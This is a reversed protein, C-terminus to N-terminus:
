RVPALRPDEACVANWAAALKRLSGAGPIALSPAVQHASFEDLQLEYASFGRSGSVMARAQELRQQWPTREERDRLERAIGKEGIRDLRKELVELMRPARCIRAWGAEALPSPVINELEGQMCAIVWAWQEPYPASLRDCLGGLRILIQEVSDVVLEASESLGSLGGDLCAEFQSQSRISWSDVVHLFCADVILSEIQSRVTGPAQLGAYRIDLGRGDLLWDLHGSLASGCCNVLASTIGLHHISCAEIRAPLLQPSFGGEGHRIAVWAVLRGTIGPVLLSEPLPDVPLEPSHNPCLAESLPEVERTFAADVQDRLSELLAAPERGRALENGQEDTVLIVMSLHEPLRDRDFDSAALEIGGIRTLYRALEEFLDGTGFELEESADHATQGIPTFRTRIRKPLSRILIEVKENLLGPVMWHLRTVDLQGLAPLSVEVTVGDSHFGPEHRYDLRLDAGDPDLTDPFQSSDIGRGGSDLLDSESMVLLGPARREAKTRWREFSPASHIDAPIRQDYFAFRKESPALLDHRRGKEELQEIRKRLTTNRELFSARTRLKEEVLAEHIFVDRAVVPDIPGFPVRRRPVVVLQGFHVREYAAVQGSDKLYHPDEYERRVLHPAVREVWDGRIKAAVRGFRRTTEMVEAVVVWPADSRGLGSSPHIQFQAGNVMEYAREDNRRGINSVLGSLIARHMAGWGGDSLNAERLSPMKLEFVERVTDRLQRHVEFWERMRVNSLFRDVCWRRAASAGESRHQEQYGVWLRLLGAFDSKQDRWPSQALDAASEQGPPRLRPDQISLASAIVLVEPLVREDIAEVLMRGIRPDLPLKALKSGVDTLNRSRDVAGLEHLTAWGEEIMRVSPCDLFPFSDIDGLGLGIMRLIVSALNSRLIEPQTFEPAEDFREESYLRICRGPGIRGCRGARQRASAQSIQEIPLRQIRARASFRSVRALGTDIVATIRPVTLSTEAVNTALVVRRREGPQFILRQQPGPLRAFLPLCEWQEGLAGSLHEVADRIEREGPLFVLVDQMGDWTELKRIAAELVSGSAVDIGALGLDAPELYELEVPHARGSVEVVPCGGFQDSFRTADITASTIILKLDTRRELVRKLYGLLFDINLSREHAEDIIITDYRDLDRDDQTEALLIGDTMVKVCSGAGHVKQFRVQWGVLGGLETATEAAIREAVSQAAVRRPQTHGIVGDIGRGAELCMKPLQTTKGSGTEGCVVIVQHERIAALLEERRASVPLDAPYTFSRNTAECRATRVSEAREIEHTIKGLSRDVPRGAREIRAVRTLWRGISRRELRPCGALRARLQDIDFLRTM